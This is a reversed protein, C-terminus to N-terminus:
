MRVGHLGSKPAWLRSLAPASAMERSVLARLDEVMDCDTCGCEDPCERQSRAIPAYSDLVYCLDDARVFGARRDGEAVLAAATRTFGDERM